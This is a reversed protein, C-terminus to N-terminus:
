EEQKYNYDVRLIEYDAERIDNRVHVADEEYEGFKELSDYGVVDDIDKVLEDADDALYGDAYYTLSITDYGAISGFDDPSITYIDGRNITELETDGEVDDEESYGLNSIKAAYSILDPNETKGNEALKAHAEKIEEKMDDEMRGFTEKVSKIEENAIQEYKSKVLKLTVVSGVAAGALFIIVKNLEENM